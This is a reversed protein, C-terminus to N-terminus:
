NFILKIKNVESNCDGNRLVVQPATESSSSHAESVPKSLSDVIVSPKRTFLKRRITAFNSSRRERITGSPALSSPAEPLVQRTDHFEVYPLTIPLLTMPAPVIPPPSDQHTSNLSPTNPPVPPTPKTEITPQEPETAPTVSTITPTAGDFSLLLNMESRYPPKSSTGWDDNTPQSLDKASQYRTNALQMQTLDKTLHEIDLLLDDM